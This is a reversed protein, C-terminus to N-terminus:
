LIGSKKGIERGPLSGPDEEKFNCLKAIQQMETVYSDITEGEVQNRNHFQYSEFMENSKDQCYESLISNLKQFSDREIERLRMGDLIDNTDDWRMHSFSSSSVSRARYEATISHHLQGVPVSLTVM